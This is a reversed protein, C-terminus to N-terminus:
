SQKGRANGVWKAVQQAVVNAARNLAAGVPGAKAPVGKEMAQFRRSRVTGDPLTLVADYRVVVSSTDADYDMAQLEGALQTSANYGLEGGVVVMRNTKARITEALVRKFLEAPKEVWVAGKLYALSSDSTMVPVRTVDLREATSPTAVALTDGKSGTLNVGAPASDSATLTLLQSPPKQSLSICGSLLATGLVIAIARSRM